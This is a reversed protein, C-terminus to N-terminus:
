SGSTWIDTTSWDRNMSDCLAQVRPLLRSGFADAGDVGRVADRVADPLRDALLKLRATVEDPDLGSASALAAWHSPTIFGFRNEGGVKFAFVPKRGPFVTEYPLVSAVDYLPALEVTSESELLSFNKAHSDPAGLLYNVGLFEVFRMPDATQGRERLLRIIAAATPGGDTEYKLSPYVGLAQCIDEQHVRLVRGSSDSIRDFRQVVIAPEADFMTFETSAAPLGIRAAAALCIHENLASAALRPIGPKIIHTTPESGSVEAWGGSTKRLAIKPQAGALSWEEFDTVWEADVDDRLRQLRSAISATSAPRMQGVGSLAAEVSDPHCFRVAGACDMGIHELLAFPNRGSTGFSRGIRERVVPNDTLLGDIFPEIVKHSYRKVTLPMSLSLATRGPELAYEFEHRGNNTQTLTGILRNYLLVALQRAVDCRRNGSWTTYAAM